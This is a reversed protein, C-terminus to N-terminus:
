VKVGLTRALPNLCSPRVSSSPAMSRNALSSLACAGRNQVPSFLAMRYEHVASHRCVFLHSHALGGKSQMCSTTCFICLSGTLIIKSTGYQGLCAQNERKSRMVVFEYKM